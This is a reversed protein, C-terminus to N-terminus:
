EIIPAWSDIRTPTKPPPLAITQTVLPTTTTAGVTSGGKIFVLQFSGPTTTTTQTMNGYGLFSDSGGSNTVNTNCSPLQRLAVGAVVAGDETVKFDSSGDAQKALLGGSLLTADKPQLYDVGWITSAGIDTCDAGEAFSSYYLTKNFLTLPGLVREGGTWGYRWNLQSKYTRTGDTAVTVAETVSAVYNTQTPDPTLSDQDGTSFAVTIQGNNDVSLVPANQIPQGLDMNPGSDTFPDYFVNMQWLSPDTNSVDVRWIRGEQDGVFIRDAVAGTESPYAVPQGSIPASIDLGVKTGTPGWTYNTVDAGTGTPFTIPQATNGPVQPRFTRIIQGTDLRVITLSRAAVSNMSGGSVDYCRIKQRFASPISGSIAMASSADASCQSTTTTPSDGLGGPLVAVAVERNPEPSLGTNMFVTTILPTSSGKGFLQNGNADTTLQWLFKPGATLPNAADISPKTIDLAFYGGRNHGYAEVLITRFTNSEGQSADPAKKREFRYPYTAANLARSGGQTVGVDKIVATGDLAPIRNVPVQEDGSYMTIFSPLVAPPIFAWQENNTENQPTIRSGTAAPDNGTSVTFAHLFGDNSSTYLMTDRTTLGAAFNLYTSDRLFEAPTGPRVQPLSHFIDGIANCAGTWCRNVPSAGPLGIIWSLLRNACDAASVTIGCANAALALSNPDVDGPFNTATDYSTQSGSYNGLGDTVTADLFPRLSYTPQRVTGAGIADPQFTFITRKTPDTNVNAVFDDGQSPDVDLPAPPAGNTCTIRQRLLEGKWSANTVQTGATFQYGVVPSAGSTSSTSAASPPPASVTVPFTRSTSPLKISQLITALSTRLSQPDTPFYAHDVPPTQNPPGRLAVPTGNYAIENLTCCAKLTPDTPLPNCMSIDMTACDVATAGGDKSTVTANSVAFGVVFTRVQPHATATVMDNVINDPTDYPCKDVTGNSCEPRLDLNPEGDTLLIIYNQRCAGTTPDGNKVLPDTSPGMISPAPSAPDPTNDYWFFDRADSLMGAIPTASYPRTALLIQQIWQNRQTGDEASPGFAVLRGEWPPAAANRAGVDYGTPSTCDWPGGTCCGSSVGGCQSVTGLPTHGDCSVGPTGFFYSWTGTRGTTYNASGDANLGTGPDPQPDFTMLGFRFIGDWADLLGDSSQSFTCPTAPNLTIGSGQYPRFTIGNAPFQYPGTIPPMTGPGPACQSSLPRHYAETYGLDYPPNNIDQEFELNFGSAVTRPEAYCSYNSITGTLAEILEIWRSKDNPTLTGTNPNMPDCIPDTNSSSKWEMSGSNDVLLMINPQAPVVDLQAGAKSSLALGALLLWKSRALKRM